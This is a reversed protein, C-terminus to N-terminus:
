LGAPHKLCTHSPVGNPSVHAFLPLWPCVNGDQWPDNPRGLLEMFLQEFVLVVLEVPLSCAPCKYNDSVRQHAALVSKQRRTLM